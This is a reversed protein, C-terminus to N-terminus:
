AALKRPRIRIELEGNLAHVLKLLTELSFNHTEARELRAVFPQSVGMRRSLEKQTIKRKQRLAVIAEVIKLKELEEEYGRRFKEDKFLNRLVDQHRKPRLRKM